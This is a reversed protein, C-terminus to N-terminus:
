YKNDSYNFQEIEDLNQEYAMNYHEFRKKDNKISENSQNAKQICMKM